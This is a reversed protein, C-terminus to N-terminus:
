ARVEPARHEVPHYWYRGYGVRSLMRSDNAAFHSQTLEVYLPEVRGPREFFENGTEYYDRIAVSRSPARYM